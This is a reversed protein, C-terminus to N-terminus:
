QVGRSPPKTGTSKVPSCFCSTYTIDGKKKDPVSSTADRECLGPVKDVPTICPGGIAKNYCPGNSLRSDNCMTVAPSPTSFSISFLTATCMLSYRYFKSFDTM